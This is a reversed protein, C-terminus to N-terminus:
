GVGETRNTKGIWGADPGASRHSPALARLSYGAENLLWAQDPESLNPSVRSWPPDFFAAVASLDSGIAELKRGSYFGDNGTGRLIRDFYVDDCAAQHRGALCGHVVAGYLPQLGDLGEPRHETTKCLHDFLRRHAAQFSELHQTRLQEAFSERILPHADISPPPALASPRPSSAATLAILGLTELRKLSTNWQADTMGHLADTLGSIPPDARM